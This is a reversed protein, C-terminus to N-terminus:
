IYETTKPLNYPTIEDTIFVETNCFQCKWVGDRMFSQAFEHDCSDNLSTITLSKNDQHALAELFTLNM